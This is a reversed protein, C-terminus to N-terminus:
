SADERLLDAYACDPLHNRPDRFTSGTPWWWKDPKPATSGCVPCAPGSDTVKVCGPVSWDAEWPDFICWGFASLGEMLKRERDTM